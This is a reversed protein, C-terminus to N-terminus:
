GIRESDNRRSGRRPEDDRALVRRYARSLSGALVLFLVGVVFLSAEAGFTGALYYIALQPTWQFAGATGLVLEPVLSAKVAGVILLAATAAGLWMGITHADGAVVQAGVLATVAGIMRGLLTPELLRLYAAGAWALGFGWAALGWVLTSFGQDRTAGVADVTGLVTLLTAAFLVVHQLPLRRWAWFAAAPVATIGAVFLL